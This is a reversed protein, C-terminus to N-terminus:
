QPTGARIKCREIKNYHIALFVAFPVFKSQGNCRRYSFLKWSWPPEARLHGNYAWAGRSRWTGGSFQGHGGKNWYEPALASSYQYLGCHLWRLVYVTWRGVVIQAEINVKLCQLHLNVVICVMFEVTVETLTETASTASTPAQREM